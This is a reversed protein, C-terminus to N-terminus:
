DLFRTSKLLDALLEPHLLSAARAAGIEVIKDCRQAVESQLAQERKCVVFTTAVAINVPSRPTHFNPQTRTSVKTIGYAGKL